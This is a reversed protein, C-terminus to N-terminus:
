VVSKRDLPTAPGGRPALVLGVPGLEGLIVLPKEGRYRLTWEQLKGGESSVSGRFLPAEVRSITQPLRAPEPLPAAPPAPRPPSVPAPANPAPTAPKDAPPPPQGQPLFFTQYIVLLALMLGVALIGRKEM